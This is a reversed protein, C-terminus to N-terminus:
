FGLKGARHLFLLPLVTSSPLNFFGSAIMFLCNNDQRWLFIIAWALGIVFRTVLVGMIIMITNFAKKKSPDVNEWGGGQAGPHPRILVCLVSISCFSVSIFALFLFCFDLVIYDDMMVFALGVFCLVWACAITINRIGAGREKKLTFYAIPHVVALYRDMCTLIHFFDQGYWALSFLYSGVELFRTNFRYIGYISLICGFAGIVEAVMLHYTFFDSHSIRPVQSTSGKKCRNQLSVYIVSISLPFVLLIYAMTYGTFILSM